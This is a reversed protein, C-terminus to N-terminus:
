RPPLSLLRYQYEDTRGAGSSTRERDIRYSLPGARHEPRDPPRVERHWAGQAGDLGEAGPVRTLDAPWIRAALQGIRGWPDDGASIGTYGRIHLSPSNCGPDPRLRGRVARAAM